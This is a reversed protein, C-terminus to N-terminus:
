GPPEFDSAKRLTSVARYSEVIVDVTVGDVNAIVWRLDIRVQSDVSERIQDPGSFGALSDTLSAQLDNARAQAADVADDWSDFEDGIAYLDPVAFYVRTITAGAKLGRLSM